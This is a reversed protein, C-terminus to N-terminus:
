RTKIKKLLLKDVQSNIELTKKNEIIIIKTKKPIRVKYNLISKRSYIWVVTNAAYIPPSEQRSGINLSKGKSLEYFKGNKEFLSFYPSTSAKHCSLLLDINERKFIKIGREIDKKQRLPSTPDLIIMADVEEKYKREFKILADKLVPLMPTKSRSLKKEREIKMIKDRYKKAFGLIKKSDTSLIVKKIVKISLGIDIAINTIRKKKFLILNKKPVEKSGSRAPVIAIFKM